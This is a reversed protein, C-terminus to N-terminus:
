RCGHLLSLHLSKEVRLSICDSSFSSFGDQLPDKSLKAGDTGGDIDSAANPSPKGYSPSKPRFANQANLARLKAVSTNQLNAGVLKPNKIQRAFPPDALLVVQANAQLYTLM